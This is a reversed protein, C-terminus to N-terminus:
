LYDAATFTWTFLLMFYFFLNKKQGTTLVFHTVTSWCLFVVVFSMECVLGQFRFLFRMCWLRSGLLRNDQKGFYEM